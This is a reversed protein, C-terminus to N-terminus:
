EVEALAKDKAFAKEFHEQNETIRFNGFRKIWQLFTETSVNTSYGVISKLFDFDYVATKTKTEEDYHYRLPGYTAHLIQIRTYVDGINKETVDRVGIAMLTFCLNAVNEKWAEDGEKYNAVRTANWDLSM